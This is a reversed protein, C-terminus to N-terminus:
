RASLYIEGPGTSEAQSLADLTTKQLDAFDYGAIETLGLGCTAIARIGEVPDIPIEVLATHLREAVVAPSGVSPVTTLLAFRKGRIHGVISASPSHEVAIRGVAYVAQDGYTRGFATNMHELNAVDLYLLVLADRDRKARLLWDRAAQEFEQKDFVGAITSDGSGRAADGGRTRRSASLVSMSIAALIVFVITVFTTSVTGWYRNFIDGDSGDVLIVVTRLLYFLAVGWFVVTLVRANLSRRLVGRVTEIGALTAFAAVGLFMPVAGAWGGGTPGELLVFGGVLISAPVTVYRLAKRENFQRTGSWMAGLSLVLAANGVAVAWWAHPVVSWVAYSLTTLIGMIFAISWTRGVDDAGRLVTNIIFSFASIAVVAGSALILTQTDILM